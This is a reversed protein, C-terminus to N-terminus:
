SPCCFPSPNVPNTANRMESIMLMAM